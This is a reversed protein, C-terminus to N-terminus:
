NEVVLLLRPKGSRKAGARVEEVRIDILAHAVADADSLESASHTTAVAIVAMAASRAALIGPLTDEVVVCKQPAVGTLEAAKLYCEPDPKGNEVDEASVLIKPVPLGTGRLRATALARSGSTAIAWSDTPLAALLDSAGEVKCVNAVDELEIRDLERAEADPDLHPAVDPVVEEARRGHVGKLVQDADLGHREAWIRTAQEVSYESDVLVGYLDFLIAECDFRSVV